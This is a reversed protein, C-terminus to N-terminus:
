HYYLLFMNYFYFAVPVATFILFVSTGGTGGSYLFISYTTWYVVCEMMIAVHIYLQTSVKKLRCIVIITLSIFTMIACFAALTGVTESDKKFNDFALYADYATLFASIVM